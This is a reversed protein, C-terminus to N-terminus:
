LRRIFVFYKELFPIKIFHSINQILLQKYKNNFEISVFSHSINSYLIDNLIRSFLKISKIFSFLLFFILNMEYLLNDYIWEM